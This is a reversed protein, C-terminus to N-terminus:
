ENDVRQIQFKIVGGDIEAKELIGNKYYYTNEKGDPSTKRYTNSAIQKITHFEGHEEAYVNSINKPEEFILKVTSYKIDQNLEEPKENDRVFTYGEGKRETFANTRQKGNFKIRASAEVLGLRDFTVNYGYNVEIKTIIRTDINTQNTYVTKKYVVEKVAELVGISKGRHVVEFSAKEEYFANSSVFILLLILFRM